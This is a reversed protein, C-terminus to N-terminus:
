SATSRIRAIRSRVLSLAMPNGAYVKQALSLENLFGLLKQRENEAGAPVKPSITQVDQIDASFAGSNM